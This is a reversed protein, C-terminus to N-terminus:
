DQEEISGAIKIMTSGSQTGEVSVLQSFNESPGSLRVDSTFRMSRRKLTRQLYTIDKSFKDESFKKELMFARYSDRMGRPLYGDSFSAIGIVSEQAVKLYTYLGYNLDVKQSPPLKAEDIFQRTLHYFDRTLKKSSSAIELGLFANYFYRAADRTEAKTGNHDYVYAHFDEPVRECGPTIPKGKEIFFGVKYLKQQPTLLLNTLYRLLVVGKGAERTFGEHEEAKVVSAFRRSNPGTTGTLVVVIGGPISRTTQAEVLKSILKGSAAVYNVDDLDLLESVTRFASAEGADVIQMEISHANSGMVSTIRKQLTQIGVPHLSTLETSLNPPAVKKEIDREFIEHVVIREIVLNAFELAM